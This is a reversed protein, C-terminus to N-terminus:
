IAVPTLDLMNTPRPPIRPAMNNSLCKSFLIVSPSTLKIISFEGVFKRLWLEEDARM